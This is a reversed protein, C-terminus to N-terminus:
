FWGTEDNHCFISNEQGAERLVSWKLWMWVHLLINQFALVIILIFQQAQMHHVYSKFIFKQAM